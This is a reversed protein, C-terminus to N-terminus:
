SLIRIGVAEGRGTRPTGSWPAKNLAAEFGEKHAERKAALISASRVACRYAEKPAPAAQAALTGGDPRGNIANHLIAESIKQVVAKPAQRGERGMIGVRRTESLGGIAVEGNGCTPAAGRRELRGRFRM